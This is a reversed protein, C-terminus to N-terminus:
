IDNYFKGKTPNNIIGALVLIGLLATWIESYNDPLLDLGFGQMLIPIFAFIAAWLAYNRFREM